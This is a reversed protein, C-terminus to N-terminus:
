PHFWSSTQSAHALHFFYIYIFYQFLRSIQVFQIHLIKPRFLSIFFSKQIKSAVCMLVYLCALVFVNVRTCDLQYGISGKFFDNM